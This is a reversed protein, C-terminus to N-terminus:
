SARGDVLLDLVNRARWAEKKEERGVNLASPRADNLFSM